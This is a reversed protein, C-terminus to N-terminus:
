LGIVQISFTPDSEIVVMHHKMSTLWELRELITRIEIALVSVMGSLCIIKGNVFEGKHDRPVVAILFKDSSPLVSADVNLKM